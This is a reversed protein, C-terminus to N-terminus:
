LTTLNPVRPLEMIARKFIENTTCVSTMIKIKDELQKIKAVLIDNLAISIKITGDYMEESFSFPVDITESNKTKFKINSTSIKINDVSIYDFIIDPFKLQEFEYKSYGLIDIIKPSTDLIKLDNCRAVIFVYNTTSIRRRVIACGSPSQEAVREFLTSLGNLIFKLPTKFGLSSVLCSLKEGHIATYKQCLDGIKLENNGIIDLLNKSINKKLNDKSSVTRKDWCFNEHGSNFSSYPASPPLGPAPNRQM